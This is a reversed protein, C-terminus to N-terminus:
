RTSNALNRFTITRVECRDYVSDNTVLTQNRRLAAAAHISDFYTLEEFDERLRDALVYDDITTAQESIGYRELKRKVFILSMYKERSSKGQSDLVARLEQVASDLLGVHIKEQDIAQLIKRTLKDM